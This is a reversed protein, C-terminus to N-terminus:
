TYKSRNKILDNYIGDDSKLKYIPQGNEEYSLNLFNNLVNNFSKVVFNYYNGGIPYTYDIVTNIINASITTSEDDNEYNYIANIGESSLYDRYKDLLTNGYLVYKKNISFINILDLIENPLIDLNDFIKYNLGYIKIM